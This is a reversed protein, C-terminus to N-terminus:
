TEKKCTMVRGLFTKNSWNKRAFTASKPRAMCGDSPRFCFPSFSGTFHVEGSASKWCSNVLMYAILIRAIIQCVCIERIYSIIPSVGIIFNIYIGSQGLPLMRSGFRIFKRFLELRGKVGGGENESFWTASKAVFIRSKAVFTRINMIAPSNYVIHDYKGHSAHLVVTWCPFQNFFM